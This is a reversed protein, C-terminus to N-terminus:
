GGSRLVKARAVFLVVRRPVNIVGGAAQLVEHIGQYLHRRLEPDAGRHSSFTWLSRAYDEATVRDSLDYIRVVPANFCGSTMFARQITEVVWEATFRDDPNVLDPARRRYVEAVALAWDADRKGPANWFFAASGGPALAQAAKPYGIKPVIWHFSDAALALEFAAPELPWDEFASTVVEVQPYERLSERAHDALQKGLEVALIRYGRRAFPLTANGTGCGIELIRGGPSLSSLQIVDEVLQDPYEPRVERYLGAQEEFTIRQRRDIMM